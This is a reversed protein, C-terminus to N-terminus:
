ISSSHSAARSEIVCEFLFFSVLEATYVLHIKSCSCFHWARASLSASLPLFGDCGGGGVVCGFYWVNVADWCCSTLNTWSSFSNTPVFSTVQGFLSHAQLLVRHVAQTAGTRKRRDERRSRSTATRTETTVQSTMQSRGQSQSLRLKRRASVCSATPSM